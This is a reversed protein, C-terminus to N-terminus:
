KRKFLYSHHQSQSMEFGENIIVNIINKEEEEGKAYLGPHLEILILQISDPFFPPVTQIIAESGEIDIVLIAPLFKHKEIITKLDFINSAKSASFQNERKKISVIGGLSGATEDFSDVHVDSPLEFVPFAFGTEVIVNGFEELWKRSYNTIKESAEISVLKGLPGINKSIIASLIGISGGMEIVRAGEYLVDRLITREAQEYAGKLLIMKTGFSYPTNRLKILSGDIDVYAPWFFEPILHKLLFRRVVHFASRITM